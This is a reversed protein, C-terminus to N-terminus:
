LAIVRNLYIRQFLGTWYKFYIDLRIREIRIFISSNVFRPTIRKGLSMMKKISLTDQNNWQSWHQLRDDMISWWLSLAVDSRYERINWAVARWFDLSVKQRRQTAAFLLAMGLKRKVAKDQCIIAYTSSMWGAVINAETGQPTSTPVHSYLKTSSLCNKLREQVAEDRMDFTTMPKGSPEM